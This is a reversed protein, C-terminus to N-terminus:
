VCLDLVKAVEFHTDLLGDRLLPSTHLGVGPLGDGHLVSAPNALPVPLLTVLLDRQVTQLLYGEFISIRAPKVRRDATTVKNAGNADALQDPTRQRQGRGYLKGM